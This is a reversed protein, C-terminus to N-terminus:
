KKILKQTGTKGSTTEVKVIYIGSALNTVDVTSVNSTAVVKGMVDIVSITKVSDNPVEVKFMSNTPNPYLSIEKLEFNSNSLAAPAQYKLGLIEQQTLARNFFYLEDMTIAAAKSSMPMGNAPNDFGTGLYIQDSIKYLVDGAGLYLIGVYDGNIYYTLRRTGGINKFVLAHHNWGDEQAYFAYDEIDSVGSTSSYFLGFNDKPTSGYFRQRVYMSNFLEISTEYSNTLTVDRKQWFAVTFDDDNIVQDLTQNVFGGTLTLALGRYGGNYDGGVPITPINTFSHANNHSSLSSEFPFYAVLDTTNLPSEQIYNNFVQTETLAVDYIKLDDFLYTDYQNMGACHKGLYFLNSLTTWGSTVTDIVLKGNRYTKVTTGDFTMVYHYWGDLPDTSLKIYNRENTASPYDYGYSYSIMYNNRQQLGFGRGSNETGYFFLGFTHNTSIIHNYKVWVSVTRPSTGVPLAPLTARYNHTNGIKALAGNATGHRDTLYTAGITSNQSYFEAGTINSAENLTGNFTYQYIPTQAVLNLSTLVLFLLFKKM